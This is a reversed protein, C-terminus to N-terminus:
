ERRGLKFVIGVGVRFDKTSWVGDARTPLYDIQPLRIATREGVNVDLGGGVGITLATETIGVGHATSGGFLVHFFGTSKDGRVSFQPGALYQYLQITQGGIRKYQGGLDLTLGLAGAFDATTSGQWGWLSERSFGADVSALSFGTFIETKPYITQGWVPLWSFVVMTGVLLAKKTMQNSRKHQQLGSTGAATIKIGSKPMALRVPANATGALTGFIWDFMPLFINFCREPRDHHMEHRDRASRLWAPLRQNMHLRWHIEEVCLLYATFAAMVPMSIGLALLFDTAVIPIGNIAYLAVIRLPSGGLAIHEAAGATSATAHHRLHHRAHMGRPRHLLFRHYFYEFGNAWFVGALSGVCWVVPSAPWGVWGGLLLM